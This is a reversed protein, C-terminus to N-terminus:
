MDLLKGWLVNKRDYFENGSFHSKLSITYLFYNIYDFITKPALM